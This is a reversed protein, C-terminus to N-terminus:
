KQDSKSVKKAKVVRGLTLYLDGACEEPWVSVSYYKSEPLGMVRRVEEDMKVPDEVYKKFLETPMKKMFLKTSLPRFKVRSLMESLVNRM